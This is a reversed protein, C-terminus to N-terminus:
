KSTLRNKWFSNTYIYDYVGLRNRSSFCRRRVENEGCWKEYLYINRNYEDILRNHRDLDSRSDFFRKEMRWIRKNSNKIKNILIFETKKNKIVSFVRFLTNKTLTKMSFPCNQLQSITLILDFISLIM